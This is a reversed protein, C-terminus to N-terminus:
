EAGLRRLTAAAARRAPDSSTPDELVDRNELVARARDAATMSPTATPAPADGGADAAESDTQRDTQRDTPMARANGASQWRVAAAHRGRASERERDRDLSPLAYCGHPLRTVLGLRVLQLSTRSTRPFPPRHPWVADAILVLRVWAGLQADTLQHLAPEDHYLRVFRRLEAMATM